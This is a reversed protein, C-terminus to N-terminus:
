DAREVRAVVKGEWLPLIANDNTLEEHVVGTGFEDNPKKFFYRYVGKKAILQKFQGLTLLSQNSLKTQLNDVIESQDNVEVFLGSSSISSPPPNHSGGTWVTRYPVPDDCLYYGVVLGPGSSGTTSTTHCSQQMMGSSSSSLKSDLRTSSTNNEDHDYDNEDIDLRINNNSELSNDFNMSHKLNKNNTSSSNTTINVNNNGIRHASSKRHSHHHHHHHHHSKRGHSSSSSPEKGNKSIQAQSNDNSLLVANDSSLSKIKQEDDDDDNTTTNTTTPRLPTHLTESSNQQLKLWHQLLKGSTPKKCDNNVDILIFM